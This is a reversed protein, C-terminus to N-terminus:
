DKWFRDNKLDEILGTVTEQYMYLYLVRDFDKSINICYLVTFPISFLIIMLNWTFLAILVITASCCAYFYTKLRVGGIRIVDETEKVQKDM